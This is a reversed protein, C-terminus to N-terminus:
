KSGAGTASLRYDGHRFGACHEREHYKLSEGDRVVFKFEAAEEDHISYITCTKNQRIQIACGALHPMESAPIGCTTHLKTQSVVEWKIIESAPFEREWKYISSACGTLALACLLAITKM